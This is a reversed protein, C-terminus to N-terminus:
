SHTTSPLSPARGQTPPEATGEDLNWLNFVRNAEEELECESWIGGAGGSSSSSAPPTRGHQVSRPPCHPCLSRLHPHCGAKAKAKLRSFPAATCGGAHLPLEKIRPLRSGLLQTMKQPPPAPAHMPDEEHPRMGSHEWAPVPQAGPCPQQSGEAMCLPFEQWLQM